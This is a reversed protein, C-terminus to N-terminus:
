IFQDLFGNRYICVLERSTTIADPMCSTTASERKGSQQAQSRQLSDRFYQNVACKPKVQHLERMRTDHFPLSAITQPLAHVSASAHLM